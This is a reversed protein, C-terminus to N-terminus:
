NEYKQVLENKGGRKRKKEIWAMKPCNSEIDFLNVIFKDKVKHPFDCLGEGGGIPTCDDCESCPKDPIIM